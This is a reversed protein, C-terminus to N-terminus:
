SIQYFCDMYLQYSQHYLTFSIWIFWEHFKTNKWGSDYRSSHKFNNPGCTIMLLPPCIFDLTHLILKNFTLEVKLNVKSFVLKLWNDLQWSIQKNSIKFQNKASRLRSKSYLRQQGRESWLSPNNLGAHHYPYILDRKTMLFPRVPLPFALQEWGRLLPLRLRKLHQPFPLRTAAKVSLGLRCRLNM